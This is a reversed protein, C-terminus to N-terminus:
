LCTQSLLNRVLKKLHGKLSYSMNLMHRRVVAAAKVLHMSKDDSKQYNSKFYCSWYRDSGQKYAQLDPVHAFLREKLSQKTCMMKLLGLQVANQNYMDALDCLKFVTAIDESNLEM